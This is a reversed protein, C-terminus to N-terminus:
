SGAPHSCRSFHAQAFSSQLRPSSFLSTRAPIVLWCLTLRALIVTVAPLLSCHNRPCSLLKPRVTAEKCRLHTETAADARNRSSSHVRAAFNSNRLPGFAADIRHQGHRVSESAQRLSDVLLRGGKATAVPHRGLPRLPSHGASGRSYVFASSSTTHM